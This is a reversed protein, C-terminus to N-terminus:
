GGSLGGSSPTGAPLERRSRISRAAARLWREENTADRRLIKRAVWRTGFQLFQMALDSAARARNLREAIIWWRVELKRQMGNDDFAKAASRGGIHVVRAVDAASISPVGAEWMRMALDTDEGYMVLRPDFPGFELLLERRAVLCAGNLWGAELREEYRWPECHVRVRKPMLAGPWFSILASAWGALPPRAGIQVSGDENLLRPGFLARQGAALEALEALSDDVIVTDPNLLIVVESSAAEVGINNAPGFGVNEPLEILEAGPAHERIVEPTGDGSANDVFMLDGRGALHRAWSEALAPIEVASNWTVVIATFRM